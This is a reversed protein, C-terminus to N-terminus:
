LKPELSYESAKYRRNSKFILNSHKFYKGHWAERCGAITDVRMVQLRERGTSTDRQGGEGGGEERHLM